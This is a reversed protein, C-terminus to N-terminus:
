YGSSRVGTTPPIDNNSGTTNLIIRDLSNHSESTHTKGVMAGKTPHIHYKGKYPLGTTSVVYETGDTELNDQVGVIKYYQSYNNKYKNVLGQIKFAREKLELTKYNLTSVQKRDKGTLIWPFTIPIYLQFQVIPSRDKFLIYEKKSIEIYLNNNTKKVIYRQIEGFDYDEKTPKCATQLPRRPVKSYATTRSNSLLYDMPLTFYNSEETANEVEPIYFDEAGPDSFTADNGLGAATGNVLELEINPRDNPYKGSFYENTSTKFYYGRYASKTLKEVLEDGNTFQSPKIQSKPYYM